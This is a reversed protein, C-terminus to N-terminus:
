RVPQDVGPQDLRDVRFMVRKQYSAGLQTARYGSADIRAQLLPWIEQKCIWVVGPEHEGLEVALPEDFEPNFASPPMPDLSIKEIQTGTGLHLHLGYRAM